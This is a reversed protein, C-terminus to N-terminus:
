KGDKVSGKLGGTLLGWITRFLEDVSMKSDPKLYDDVLNLCASEMFGHLVEAPIDRRILGQRQAQRVFSLEAAQYQAHLERAEGEIRCEMRRFPNVQFLLRFFEKHQRMYLLHAEIGLRLKELPNDTGQVSQHAMGFMGRAHRGVIATFLSEKNKFHLYFTGAACGAAAAIDQMTAGDYGKQFMVEQAADLMQEVASEKLRERLTATKREEVQEM